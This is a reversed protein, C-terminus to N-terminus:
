DVLGFHSFFVLFALDFGVVWCSGYVWLPSLVVGWVGCVLFCLLCFLLLLVGVPFGCMKFSVVLRLGLGGVGLWSSFDSGWM